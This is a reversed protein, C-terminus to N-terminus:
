SFCLNRFVSIISVALFPLFFRHTGAADLRPVPLVAHQPVEPNDLDDRVFDWSTSPAFTINFGAISQGTSMVALLYDMVSKSIDGTYINFSSYVDLVDLLPINASFVYQPFWSVFTNHLATIRVSSPVRRTEEVSTFDISSKLSTMAGPTYALLRYCGHLIEKAISREASTRFSLPLALPYSEHTALLSILENYLYMWPIASKNFTQDSLGRLSILVRDWNEDPRFLRPPPSPPLPLPRLSSSPSASFYELFKNYFSSLTIASTDQHTDLFSTLDAYSPYLPSVYASSSTDAASYVMELEAEAAAVTTSMALRHPDRTPPGKCTDPHRLNYPKQMETVYGYWLLSEYGHTFFDEHPDVALYWAVRASDRVIAPFM